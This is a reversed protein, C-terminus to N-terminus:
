VGNVPQVLLRASGLRVEGGSDMERLGKNTDSIDMVTRSARLCSSSRRTFAVRGRMGGAM